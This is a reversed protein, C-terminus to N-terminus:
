DDAAPAGGPRYERSIAKWKGTSFRHYNVAAPVLTEALFALYLGWIGLATTAGLYALPIGVVVM